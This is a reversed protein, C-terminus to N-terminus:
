EMSSNVTSPLNCFPLDLTQVNKWDCTVEYEQGLPSGLSVGLRYATAPMLDVFSGSVTNTPNAILDFTQTAVTTSLNAAPGGAELESPPENFGTELHVTVKSFDNAVYNFSFSIADHTILTNVTPCIVTSITVPTAFTPGGIYCDTQIRVLYIMNAAVGSIVISDTVASVTAYATWNSDSLKKYQVEQATTNDSFPTWTLNLSGTVYSVALGTAKGCYGAACGQILSCFLDHLTTNGQITTFIDQVMGFTVKTLVGVSTVTTLNHIDPSLVLDVKLPNSALGSGSIDNSYTDTTAVALAGRDINLKQLIDDYRDKTIVGLTDLNPGDYSVCAGSIVEECPEGNVCPPEQPTVEYCNTVPATVPLNTNDCGCDGM